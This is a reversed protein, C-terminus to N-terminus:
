LLKVVELDTTQLLLQPRSQQWGKWQSSSGSVVRLQLGVTLNIPLCADMFPFHVKQFGITHKNKNQFLPFFSYFYYITYLFGVSCSLCFENLLM